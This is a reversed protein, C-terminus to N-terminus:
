GINIDDPDGAGVLGQLLMDRALMEAQDDSPVPMKAARAQAQIARAGKEVTAEDFGQPAIKPEIPPANRLRVRSARAAVPAGHALMNEAAERRGREGKYRGLAHGGLWGLWYAVFGTGAAAAVCWLDVTV